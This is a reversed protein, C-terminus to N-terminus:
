RQSKDKIFNEIQDLYQECDSSNEDKAAIELDKGMDSLDMFGYGGGSGKINHGFKMVDYYEGDHLKERIEPISTRVYEIYQKILEIFEPDNLLENITM